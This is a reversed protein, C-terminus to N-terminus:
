KILLMKKGISYKGSDIKYIYIGSPLGSANFKVKYNGVEKMGENLTKILEGNLNFIKIKIDAKEIISYKITTAPNFPNPYNQFLHFKRPEEFDNKVSVINEYKIGDIYAEVLKCCRSGSGIYSYSSVSTEIPGLNEAFIISNYVDVGPGDYYEIWRQVDYEKDFYKKRFVEVTIPNFNTDKKITKDYAIPLSYIFDVNKNYFKSTDSRWFEKQNFANKDVSIISYQINEILTDGIVTKTFEFKLENKEYYQYKWWNGKNLSLINQGFTM